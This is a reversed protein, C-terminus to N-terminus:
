TSWTSRSTSAQMIREGGPWLTVSGVLGAEPHADAVEVLAELWGSAIKGDDQLVVFYEGRAVSRALNCAAPFGLNVPPDIVRLGDTARGM